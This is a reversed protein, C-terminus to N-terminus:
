LTGDDGVKRTGFLAQITRSDVGRDFLHTAFRHRLTHLTLKKRIGAAEVTEHFLRTVQRPTLHLGKRRGPFLWREEIPVGLDYKNTHVKWWKRLLDLAEPSLIVRRNKKGKSQEVRIVGLASDIHKVKLRVVERVRLGAGYGISFWM